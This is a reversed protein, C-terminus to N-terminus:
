FIKQAENIRDETGEGEQARVTMSRTIIEPKGKRSHQILM